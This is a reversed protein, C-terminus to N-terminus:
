TYQSFRLIDNPRDCLIQISLVYSAEGLDKMDFHSFLLQKTEVLMNTDNAVLLFIMLMYFWSYTNAGVSRCIYANISSTRRLVMPPSLKM